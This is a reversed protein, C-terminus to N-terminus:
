TTLGIAKHPSSNGTCADAEHPTAFRVNFTPISSHNCGVKQSHLPNKMDWFKTSSKDLEQVYCPGRSALFTPHEPIEVCYRNREVSKPTLRINAAIISLTKFPSLAPCELGDPISISNGCRLADYM